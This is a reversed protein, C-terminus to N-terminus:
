VLTFGAITINIFGQFKFPMCHRYHMVRWLHAVVPAPTTFVQICLGQNVTSTRAAHRSLDMSSSDSCHPLSAGNGAAGGGGYTAVAPERVGHLLGEVHPQLGPAFQLRRM